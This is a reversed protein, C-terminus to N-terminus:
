VAETPRRYDCMHKNISRLFNNFLNCFSSCSRFVNFFVSCFTPISRCFPAPALPTPILIILLDIYRRVVVGM